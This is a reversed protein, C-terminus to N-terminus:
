DPSLYAEVETQLSSYVAEPRLDNAQPDIEALSAAYWSPHVQSEELRMRFTELQGMDILSRLISAVTGWDSWGVNPVKLVRLKKAVPACIDSSFNINPITQYVHQVIGPAHISGLMSQILGFSNYLSPVTERVMQWLTTSRVTFVMTNWLAGQDILRRALALPPKEVFGAVPRTLTARPQKKLQIYGYETEQGQEPTMGLLVMKDPHRKLDALARAVSEMFRNEDRVFHDSPSVIITASPDWHTIYSLPLLIGPATDRNAPQYIINPQPWHALQRAAEASQHAGVVVLTREAPVLQQMRDLTHQLMSRRGIIPSFQKLGTGGCLQKLFGRVRTGEGGALVIAWVKSQRM